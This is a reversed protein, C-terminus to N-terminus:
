GTYQQQKYPVAQGPSVSLFATTNHEGPTEGPDGPLFHYYIESKNNVGDGDSDQAHIADFAAIKEQTTGSGWNARWANGYGNRPGNGGSPIDNTHCVSCQSNSTWGYSSYKDTFLLMGSQFAAANASFCLLWITMCWLLLFRYRSASNLVRVRFFAM